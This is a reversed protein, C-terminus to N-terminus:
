QQTTKPLGNIAAQAIQPTETKSIQTLGGIATPTNARRLAFVARMRINLSGPALAIQTLEPVMQADFVGKMASAPNRRVADGAANFGAVRAALDTESQIVPLLAEAPNEARNLLAEYLRRRVDAEPEIRALEALEPGTVADPGHASIAWAAMERVNPDHDSQAMALLFPAAEPSSNALAEVAASRLAAPTEPADLFERWTAEIEPFPFHGLSDLLQAQVDRESFEAFAAVLYDGAAPTGITGLGLAAALRQSQPLSSDNVMGALRDTNAEGGIVALGRIATLTSQENGSKLLALAAETRTADPWGVDDKMVAALFAFNREGGMAALGRIAEAAETDGGTELRTVFGAAAEVRPDHSTGPRRGPQPPRVGGLVALAATEAITLHGGAAPTASESIRPSPHDPGATGPHRFVVLAGSGAWYEAMAMGSLACAIAVLGWKSRSFSSFPKWKEAHASRSESVVRKKAVASHPSLRVKM